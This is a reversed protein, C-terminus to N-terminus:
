VLPMPLAPEKLEHIVVCDTVPAAFSGYSNDLSGYDCHKVAAGLTQTMRTFDGPLYM